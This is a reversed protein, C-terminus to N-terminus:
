ILRKQEIFQNVEQLTTKGINPQRKFDVPDKEILDHITLINLRECLEKARSSLESNILKESLISMGAASINNGPSHNKTSSNPPETTPQNETEHTIFDAFNKVEKRIEYSIGTQQKEGENNEFWIKLLEGPYLKWIM